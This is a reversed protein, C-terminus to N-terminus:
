APDAGLASLVVEVADPPTAARPVGPVRPGGELIVVPRGLRM